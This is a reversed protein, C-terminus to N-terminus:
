SAGGIAGLAEIVKSADQKKLNDFTANPHITNRIFDELELVSMGANKGRYQIMSKQAATALGPGSQQGQPRPADGGDNLDDCFQTGFGLAALARGLAKTEAKEVWGDPFEDVTCSGYGTASAGDTTTVRARFVATGSAISFPETEIIGDPHLDRFWAIRWRTELYDQGKIKTLHQAPDFANKDTM